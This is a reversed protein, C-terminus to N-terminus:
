YINTNHQDGTMQPEKMNKRYEQQSCYTRMTKRQRQKMGLSNRQALAALTFYVFCSRSPTKSQM